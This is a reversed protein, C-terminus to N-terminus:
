YILCVCSLSCHSLALKYPRFMIERRYVFLTTNPIIEESLSITILLFLRASHHTYVATCSQRPPLYLPVLNSQIARRDVHYWRM